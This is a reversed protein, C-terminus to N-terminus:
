KNERIKIGRKIAEDRALPTLIVRGTVVIGSTKYDDLDDVTILTKDSKELSM